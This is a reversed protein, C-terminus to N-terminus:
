SSVCAFNDSKNMDFNFLSVSVRKNLCSPTNFFPVFLYEREALSKIQDELLQIDRQCAREVAALAQVQLEVESSVEETFILKTIPNYWMCFPLDM